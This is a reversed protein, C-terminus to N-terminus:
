TRSGFISDFTKQHEARWATVKAPLAHGQAKLHDILAVLAEDASVVDPATRQQQPALPELRLGDDSRRYKGPACDCDAPVEFDEPGLAEVAEVGWYVGAADFKARHPM